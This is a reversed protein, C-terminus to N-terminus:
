LKTARAQKMAMPGVENYGAFVPRKMGRLIADAFRCTAEPPTRVDRFDGLHKCVRAM